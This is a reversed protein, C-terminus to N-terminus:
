KPIVVDKYEATVNGGILTHEFDAGILLRKLPILTNSTFDTQELGGTFRKMQKHRDEIHQPPAKIFLHIGDERDEFHYDSIGLQALFRKIKEVVREDPTEITSELHSEM